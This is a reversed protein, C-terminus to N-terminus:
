KVGRLQDLKVEANEAFPSEPALTKLATYTQRAKEREGLQEYAMGLARYTELRIQRTLSAELAEAAQAPRNEILLMLGRKHLAHAQPEWAREQLAVLADLSVRAQPYAPDIALAQRYADMAENLRGLALHAAGTNNHVVLADGASLVQPYVTRALAYERLAEEYRGERQHCDGLYLHPRPMYAGKAAADAWLMAPSQWVQSRQWSLAGYGGLCCTVAVLGWRWRTQTLEALMGGVLAAFAVLPLYLRHENVLVNLPVASSPLLTLLAWALWFAPRRSQGLRWSLVGGHALLLLPAWVAASAASRALTFPPEVSQGWPLWLLKLYYALAKAQTLGQVVLSRVPHSVVATDIAGWVVVLYGAGLLWYAGQRRALAASGPWGGRFWLEHLLLLPLLAIGVSKALLSAAFAVAGLTRQGCGQGYFALLLFFACLSESRSSIYNVPESALPHLAFVLGALGAQLGAGGMQLVLARVLVSTGLHIGLNVLHYSWVEYGSLAHNLAYSVLVLPRYMANRPDASFLEPEAFFRPINALSRIHPNEVISHVDDYQFPHNLSGSYVLAGLLVILGACWRNTAASILTM